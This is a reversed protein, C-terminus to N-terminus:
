RKVAVAAFGGGGKRGASKGSSMATGAKGGTAFGGSNRGGPKKAKAKGKSMAGGKKGGGGGAFQGVANRKYTRAMM